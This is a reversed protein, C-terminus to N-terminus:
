RVIRIEGACTRQHVIPAGRPPLIEIKLAEGARCTHDGVFPVRGILAGNVYIESRDVADTIVLYVRVAGKPAADTAREPRAHIRVAASPEPRQVSDETAIPAPTARAAVSTESRERSQWLQSSVVFAFRLGVLACLLGALLQITSLARQFAVRV